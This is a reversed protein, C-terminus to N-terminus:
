RFKSWWLGPLEIAQDTNRFAALVLLQSDFIIASSHCGRLVQCMGYKGAKKARGEKPGNATFAASIQNKWSIM